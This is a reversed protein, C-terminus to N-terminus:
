DATCGAPSVAWEIRDDAGDFGLVHVLDRGPRGDFDAAILLGEGFDQGSLIRRFAGIEPAEGGLTPAVAV